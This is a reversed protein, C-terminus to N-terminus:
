LTVHFLKPWPNYWPWNQLAAAHTTESPHVSQIKPGCAMLQLELSQNQPQYSLAQLKFEPNALLLPCSCYDQLARGQQMENIRLM